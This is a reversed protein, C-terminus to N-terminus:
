EIDDNAREAMAMMQDETFDYDMEALDQEIYDTIAKHLYADKVEIPEGTNTEDFVTLDDVLRHGKDILVTFDGALVRGDLEVRFSDYKIKWNIFDYKTKM